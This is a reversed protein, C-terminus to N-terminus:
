ENNKRYRSRDKFSKGYGEAARDSTPAHKITSFENILELFEDVAGSDYNERLFDVASNYSSSGIFNKDSLAHNMMVLSRGIAIRNDLRRYDIADINVM